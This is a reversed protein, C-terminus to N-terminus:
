KFPQIVKDQGAQLELTASSKLELLYINEIQTRWRPNYERILQGDPGRRYYYPDGVLEEWSRSIYAELRLRLEQRGPPALFVRRTDLTYGDLLDKQGPALPLRKWTGDAQKAEARIDWFPGLFNDLRTVRSPLPGQQRLATQVTEASLTRQIALVLRAPDPGPDVAPAACAALLALLALCAMCLSRTM